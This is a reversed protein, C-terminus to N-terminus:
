IDHQDIFINDYEPYFRYYSLVTRKRANNKKDRVLM